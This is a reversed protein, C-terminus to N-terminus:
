VCWWPWGAWFFSQFFRSFDYFYPWSSGCLLDVINNASGMVESGSVLFVGASFPFFSGLSSLPSNSSACVPCVQLVQLHGPNHTRTRCSYKKHRCVEFYNRLLNHLLCFKTYRKLAKNNAPQPCLMCWYWLTEGSGSSQPFCGERTTKLSGKSELASPNGSLRLPPWRPVLALPTPFGVNMELDEEEEM